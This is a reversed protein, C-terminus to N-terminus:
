GREELLVREPSQQRLAADLTRALEDRLPMGFLAGRITMTGSAGQFARRFAQVHEASHAEVTQLVARYVHLQLRLDDYTSDLTVPAAAVVSEHPRRWVHTGSGVEFVEGTSPLTVHASTNPPVVVTLVFEGSDIRWAAGAEGYPTLHRASAHTFPGGPLPRIELRRYGPEAPALGAVSRHLWDAVAGLAYHNFSTM